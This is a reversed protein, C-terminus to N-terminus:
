LEGENFKIADFVLNQRSDEMGENVRWSVEVKVGFMKLRDEARPSEVKELKYQFFQLVRFLANELKYKFFVQAKEGPNNGVKKFEESDGGFVNGLVAPNDLVKVPNQPFSEIEKRCSEFPLNLMRDLISSAIQSAIVHKGVSHTQSAQKTGVDMLPIIVIAFFVVGVLLELMSFGCNFKVPRLRLFACFNRFKVSRPWLFACFVCFNNFIVSRNSM